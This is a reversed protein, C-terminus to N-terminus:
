RTRRRGLFRLLEAREYLIKKGVRSGSIELRLRADRLVHPAIGLAAAAQPETMALQQGVTAEDTRLEALVDAVVAAIVPLLDRIDSADLKM